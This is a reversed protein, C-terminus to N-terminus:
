SHVEPDLELPLLGANVLVTNIRMLTPENFWERLQPSLTILQTGPQAALADVALWHAALLTRQAHPDDPIDEAAVRWLHVVISTGVLAGSLMKPLQTAVELGRHAVFILDAGQSQALLALAGQRLPPLTHQLRQAYLAEQETGHEAMRQQVRLRKAETVRTGEPFLVVADRSSLGDLLSTVNQIQAQRDAGGRQVFANPIRRGVLDLCPDFLLQEKLVFRLHRSLGRLLHVPLLTDAHSAHRVLMLIPRDTRLSELGQIEINVALIAASWRWLSDAWWQQLRHNADIFRDRYGFRDIMPGGYRLWLWGGRLLGITEMLVLVTGALLGRSAGLRAGVMLDRVLTAFLLPVLAVMLVATVCLLLSWVLGRRIVHSRLLWDM